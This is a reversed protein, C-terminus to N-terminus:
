SGPLIKLANTKPDLVVRIPGAVDDLFEHSMGAIKIVSRAHLIKRVRVAADPRSLTILTKVALPSGLVVADVVGNAIIEGGILKGQVVVKGGSTIKSNVAEAQVTVDGGARVEAHNLYKVKVKGGAIVTGRGMGQMGGTIEVDGNASEIAASGAMGSIRVGQDGKVKFEDLVDHDIQVVGFFSVNGTSFDVDGTIQQVPEVRVSKDAVIVRGKIQAVFVGDPGVKVNKGPRLESRRGAGSITKGFIDQGPAGAVPPIVRLFEQGEEVSLIPAARSRLDVSAGAAQEHREGQATVLWEVVADTAGSPFGKFLLVPESVGGESVKAALAALRERVDSTITLGLKELRIALRAGDIRGGPVAPVARLYGFAKDKDVLFHVRVQETSLDQLLELQRENGM